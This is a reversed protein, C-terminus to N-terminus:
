ELQPLGRPDALRSCADPHGRCQRSDADGGFLVGVTVIVPPAVLWFLAAGVYEVLLLRIHGAPAVLLYRLAGLNAEGVTLQLLLPISVTLTTLSLQCENSAHHLAMSM